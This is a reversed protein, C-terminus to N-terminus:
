GQREDPCRGDGHKLFLEHIQSERAKGKRQDKARIGQASQVYTAAGSGHHLTVSTTTWSPEGAARAATAPSRRGTAPSDHRCNVSRQHDIGGHCKRHVVFTREDHAAGCSADASCTNGQRIVNASTLATMANSM